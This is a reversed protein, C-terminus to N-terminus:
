NNQSSNKPQKSNNFTTDLSQNITIIHTNNSLNYEIYIKYEEKSYNFIIKSNIYLSLYVQTTGSPNSGSDKWDFVVICWEFVLNM